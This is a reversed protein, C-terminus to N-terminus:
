KTKLQKSFSLTMFVIKFSAPNAVFSESNLFHEFLDPTEETQLLLKCGKASCSVNPGTEEQNFFGALAAFGWRM